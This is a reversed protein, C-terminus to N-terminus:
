NTRAPVRQTSLLVKKYGLVVFYVVPPVVSVLLNVFCPQVLVTTISSPAIYLGAGLSSCCLQTPVTRVRGEMTDHSNVQHHTDKTPCFPSLDLTELAIRRWQSRAPGVPLGSIL